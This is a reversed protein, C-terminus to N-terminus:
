RAATIESILVILSLMLMVVLVLTVCGIHRKVFYGSKAPVRHKPDLKKLDEHIRMVDNVLRKIVEINQGPKAVYEGRINDYSLSLASILADHVEILNRSRTATGAADSRGLNVAANLMEIIVMAENFADNFNQSDITMREGIRPLNPIVENWMRSAVNNIKSAFGSASYDRRAPDYQTLLPECLSYYQKLLANLSNMDNRISYIYFRGDLLNGYLVLVSEINTVASEVAETRHEEPACSIATTLCSVCESLNYNGNIANLCGTAAGKILWAKYDGTDNELINQSYRLADNWNGSTLAKSALEMFNEIQRKSYGSMNINIDLIKRAVDKTYKVGCSQCVFFDGSKVLDVGGCLECVLRKM